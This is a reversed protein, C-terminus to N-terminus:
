KSVCHAIFNFKTYDHPNVAKKKLDFIDTYVQGFMSQIEFHQSLLTRFEPLSYETVHYRSGHPKRPTSIVLSGNNNLVRRVESLFHLPNHLHEIGEFSIVADFIPEPFLAIMDEINGIHFSTDSGDFFEKAHDVAGPHIDVGYVTRAGSTLIASGYGTGSPADLVTADKTLYRLAFQYRALYTPDADDLSLPAQREEDSNM